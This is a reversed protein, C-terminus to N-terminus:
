GECNGGRGRFGSGGQRDGFCRFIILGQTSASDRPAQFRQRRDTHVNRHRTRNFTPCSINGNATPDWEHFNTSNVTLLRKDQLTPAADQQGEGKGHMWPLCALHKSWEPLRLTVHVDGRSEM